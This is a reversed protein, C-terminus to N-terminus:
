KQDGAPAFVICKHLLTQRGVGLKGGLVREDDVYASLWEHPKLAHGFFYETWKSLIVGVEHNKGDKKATAIKVAECFMKASEREVYKKTLRM